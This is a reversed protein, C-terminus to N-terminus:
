KFKVRFNISLRKSTFFQGQTEFYPQTFGLMFSGTTQGFLSAFGFIDRRVRIFGLGGNSKDLQDLSGIITSESGRPLVFTANYGSTYRTLMFETFEISGMNNVFNEPKILKSIDFDKYASLNNGDGSIENVDSLNIDFYDNSFVTTIPNLIASILPTIDGSNRNRIDNIVNTITINGNNLANNITNSLYVGNSDSAFTQNLANIQSIKSIVVAFIKGQNSNRVDEQGEYIDSCVGGAINNPVVGCNKREFSKYFYIFLYGYPAGPVVSGWNEPLVNFKWGVSKQPNQTGDLNVINQNLMFFYSDLFAGGLGGRKLKDCSISIYKGIKECFIISDNDIVYSPPLVSNSNTSISTSTTGLSKYGITLLKLRTSRFNDVDRLSKKGKKGKMKKIQKYM